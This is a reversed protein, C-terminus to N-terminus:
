SLTVTGLTALEVHTADVVTTTNATPASLAFDIVGPTDSIVARIRQLYATDGPALTAFYAALETAAQAAVTGLSYGGALTLTGTVAVPVATPGLVLADATVPRAEDIVAQVAAVLEVSPLGGDAAIVVDVTGIGRRQPYCYAAAVGPVALAWAIYDHKAGGHPPAQIRALLRTLLELDSEADSGGTMAGSEAASQVGAPASTLSLVTTAAANGAAGAAVAQAAVTATGGGGIAGAATTQYAIGAATRAETGVPIAAAVTGSFAITGTAAAAPLRALGYLSAWRELFDPDATDPLIQRTIWQQHQYLGEIAAAVANARIAYDGDLAVNAEPIQNAVDRLIADRIATFDPTNFPM